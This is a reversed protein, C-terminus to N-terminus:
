KGGIFKMIDAGPASQEVQPLLDTLQKIIKTYTNLTKDYIEVCASKKTGYQNEGNQYFDVYGDRRIILTLEQLTVSQFAANDILKDVTNRKDEQMTIFIKALRKKEDSIMKSRKKEDYIYEIKGDM